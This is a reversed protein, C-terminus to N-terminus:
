CYLEHRTFINHYGATYDQLSKEKFLSSRRAIEIAIGKSAGFRLWEEVCQRQGKRIEDDCYFDIGALCIRQFGLFIAYAIMYAPTCNLWINETRFFKLMEDFQLNVDRNNLKDVSPFLVANKFNVYYAPMRYASDLIGRHHAPCHMDFHVATEHQLDDNLTWLESQPYKRLYSKYEHGTTLGKGKIVVTKEM